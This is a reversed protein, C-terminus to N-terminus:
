GDIHPGLRAHLQEAAKEGSITSGHAPRPVHGYSSRWDVLAALNRVLNDDMQALMAIHRALMRPLGDADMDATFRASTAGPAQGLYSGGDGATVNTIIWGRDILAAAYWFGERVLVDVDGEVGPILEVCAEEAPDVSTM